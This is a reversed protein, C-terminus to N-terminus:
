KSLIYVCINGLMAADIWYFMTHYWYGKTSFNAYKVLVFYSYAIGM